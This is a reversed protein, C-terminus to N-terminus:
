INVNSGFTDQVKPHSEGDRARGEVWGVGLNDSLVKDISIGTRPLKNFLTM